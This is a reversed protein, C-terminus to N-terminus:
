FINTHHKQAGWASFRGFVRYLFISTSFRCSVLKTEEVKKANTKQCPNEGFPKKHTKKPVGRTSFRV